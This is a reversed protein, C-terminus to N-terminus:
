PGTKDGAPGLRDGCGELVKLAHRYGRDIVEDVRKWDFLGIGSVPMRLYLDARAARARTGSESTLTASRFLIDALRPAPGDGGRRLLAEPDPGDIGPMSLAGETSVDSAIIPGRGEAQMIDTPLSNTIAGDALLDGNWVVPPAVGPVAMSTGVWLSVPGQRHVVAAGRTLNTSVCFYGLPLEEIMQDGFIARLRASFRRGRILSVRPLVFDNLYNQQVFTESAIRRLERSDAGSALLAGFFAGMSTGGILDIPRGAEELAKILGIHAFGRAGGGGLVLGLARGSLLRALREHDRTQRPDLHHHSDLDCNASWDRLRTSSVAGGDDRLMALEVPTRLMLRRLMAPLPSDIPRTASDAVILVRDAQRMCRESWADGEGTGVYLLREGGREREALWQILREGEPGGDLRSQAVGPGLLEDIREPTLREPAEGHRRFALDLRELFAAVPVEPTAPLIALAPRSPPANGAAPRLNGRLRSILVRTLELLTEPHRCMFALLADRGIRLLLSDRLAYVEATRPENAMVSIEGIPELRSIDGAVTGDPRLARLRGTAVIYLCDAPGGAAFLREGGAVPQTSCLRALQRIDSADLSAFLGCQSLIGAIDM